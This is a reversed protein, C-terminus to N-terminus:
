SFAIQHTINEKLIEIKIRKLDNPQSIKCKDQSEHDIEKSITEKTQKDIIIKKNPYTKCKKKNQKETHM